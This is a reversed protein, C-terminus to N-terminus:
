GDSVLMQDKWREYFSRMYDPLTLILNLEQDLFAQITRGAALFSGDSARSVEYYYFIKASEQEYLRTTVILEDGFRAPEFHECSAHVVPVLLGAELLDMYSIGYLQGFAWRGDEFYKLFHGHWVIRLSDVESFRVRVPVQHELYRGKPRRGRRLRM